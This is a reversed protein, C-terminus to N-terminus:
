GVKRKKAGDKKETLVSIAESIQMVSKNNTKLYFHSVNGQM